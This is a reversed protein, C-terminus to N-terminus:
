KDRRQEDRRKSREEGEKKREIGAVALLVDDRVLAHLGLLVRFCESRGKLM